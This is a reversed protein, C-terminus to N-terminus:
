KDINQLRKNKEPVGVYENKTTNESSFLFCIMFKEMSLEHEFLFEMFDQYDEPDVMGMM